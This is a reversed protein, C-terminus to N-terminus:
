LNTSDRAPLRAGWSELIAAIVLQVTAPMDVARKDLLWQVQLGDMMAIIAATAAAVESEPATPAAEALADRVMRRLGEYRRRFWEQAPHDDTVAEASLVAYSQVIGPRRQNAEATRVLHGLFDMGTPARHDDLEAVDSQDRHALVETLLQDKSGFHHLVGARTMGVREAIEELSAYRFGRTAFVETAALVIELRRVATRPHPTRTRRTVAPLTGNSAPPFPANTPDPNEHM